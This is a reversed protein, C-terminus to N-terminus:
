NYLLHQTVSFVHTSLNQTKLLLARMSRWEGVVEVSTTKNLIAIHFNLTDMKTLYLTRAYDRTDTERKGDHIRRGKHFYIMTFAMSYWPIKFCTFWPLDHYVM